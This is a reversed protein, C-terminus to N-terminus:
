SIRPHVALADAMHQMADMEEEMRKLLKIQTRTRILNHNPISIKYYMDGNLHDGLFRLAQEYTIVYAAKPLVRIEADSLTGACGEVYGKLFAEYRELNFDFQDLDKEDEEGTAAGSRIMDGFDYAALGPMVTDLDIVALIEGSVKDFLVNNLKTDNHTVRLPLEGCRHASTLIEAWHRRERLFTVEEMVEGLRMSMNEAVAKEFDRYRVPTNHFNPITEALQEAPFDLLDAQFSGFAIGCLFCDNTDKAVEFSTSNNIFDFSRWCEGSKDTIINEGRKTYRVKLTRRSPDEGRELFKKRLHETVLEINSMVQAPNKFVNINLNQLLYRTGDSCTVCYTDNIHGRGYPAISETESPFGFRQVVEWMKHENM